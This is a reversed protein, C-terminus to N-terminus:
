AYVTKQKPLKGVSEFSVTSILVRMGKPANKLSIIIVLPSNNHFFIFSIIEFTNIINIIKIAEIGLRTIAKTVASGQIIKKAINNTM